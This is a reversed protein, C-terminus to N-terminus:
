VIRGPDFGLIRLDLSRLSVWKHSIESPSVTVVIPTAMNAFDVLFVGGLTLTREETMGRHVVDCKSM